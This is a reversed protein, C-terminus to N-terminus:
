ASRLVAEEVLLFAEGTSFRLEIEGDDLTEWAAFADTVLQSIFNMVLLKAPDPHFLRATAAPTATTGCREKPSVKADFGDRSSMVQSSEQEPRGTVASNSAIADM